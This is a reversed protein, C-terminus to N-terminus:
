ATASDTVLRKTVIIVEADRAAELAFTLGAIGGGIVLYDCRTAMDPRAVMTSVTCGRVQRGTQSRGVVSRRGDM